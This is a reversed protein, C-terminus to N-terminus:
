AEVGQAPNEGPGIQRDGVVDEVYLMKVAVTSAALLPVACMLGLFGFLLAMLAQSLITLAPPLQIGGKMLLPILLHSELFHVVLYAVAVYVAKEPSDLFGMAIAPLSSLIPGVTPIFELLGCLIGLLLAAKVRLALLVFTTVLGMIVMAILQTVFWKRLVAAIATLVEGARDRRGHPFLHIIGRRYMAPDAALYISLFIIIVIGTVVEVTSTLFPFLFRTLGSFQAGLRHRLTAAVTVSDAPAVTPVPAIRPQAGPAGGPPRNAAPSAATDPMLGDFVLGVFGQRRANVWEDFRDIADPLRRRLELGQAHITPALWAGFGVLLGLFAVVIAAAGVGRRVGWRTLRDAGSSVALGFLIGIFATLFLPNAFWLLRAVIYMAIVLTATRLVDASGWGIQRGRVRDQREVHSPPPTQPQPPSPAGEHPESM